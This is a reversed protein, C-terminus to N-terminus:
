QLKLSQTRLEEIMRRKFASAIKVMLCVKKKRVKFNGKTNQLKRCKRKNIVMSKKHEKAMEM